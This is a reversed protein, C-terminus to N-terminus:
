QLSESYVFVANESFGPFNAGGDDALVLINGDMIRFAFTGSDTTATLIGAEITFTGVEAFSYVSGEGMSFDGNEMSLSIYPVSGFEFDGVMYYTGSILEVETKVTSCGVFLFVSLLCLAFIRKM